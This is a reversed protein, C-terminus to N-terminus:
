DDLLSRELMISLRKQRVMTIQEDEIQESEDDNIFGCLCSAWNNIIMSISAGLINELNNDRDCEKLNDDLKDRVKQGWAGEYNGLIYNLNSSDYGGPREYNLADNLAEVIVMDHVQKLDYVGYGFRKEQEPKLQFLTAFPQDFIPSSPETIAVYFDNLMHIQVM